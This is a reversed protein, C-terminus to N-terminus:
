PLEVFVIFKSSFYKIQFMYSVVGLLKEIQLMANCQQGENSQKM